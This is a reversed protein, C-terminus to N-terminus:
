QALAPEVAQRMEAGDLRHQLGAAIGNMDQLIAIMEAHREGAGRCREIGRAGTVTEVGGIEGRSKTACGGLSRDLAAMTQCRGDHHMLTGDNGFIRHGAHEIQVTSWRTGYRFWKM